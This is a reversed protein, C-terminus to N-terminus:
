DAGHDAVSLKHVNSFKFFPIAPPAALAARWEDALANWRPTTATLGGVVFHAEDGSEDFYSICDTMGPFTLGNRQARLYGLM